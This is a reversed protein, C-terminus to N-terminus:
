WHVQNYLAGDIWVGIVNPSPAAQLITVSSYVNAVMEYAGFHGINVPYSVQGIPAGSVCVEPPLTSALAGPAPALGSGDGIGAYLSQQQAWAANNDAPIWNPAKIAFSGSPLATTGARCQNYYNSPMPAAYSGVGGQPNQRTPPAGAMSCSPFAHGEALSTFLQEMPPVCQSINSWGNPAALCLLVECGNVAYASATLGLSVILATAGIMSKKLFNKKYFRDSSNGKV